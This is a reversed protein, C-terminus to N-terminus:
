HAGHGGHGGHAAHHAEVDEETFPKVGFFDLLGPFNETIALYMHIMTTMILMMCMLFHIVRAYAAAVAVGGVFPAIPALIIQPWIMSFGTIMILIMPGPMLIFYTLRQMPNYKGFSPEKEVPLMFFLYKMQTLMALIDQKTIFFEKADIQYAYYVRAIFNITVVYAAGYHIFKFVTRAGYFYPIRVYLGTVALIVMGVLHVGHMIKPSPPILHPAPHWNGDIFREQLRGTLLNGVLHMMWFQSLPILILVVGLLDAWMNLKSLDTIQSIIASIKFV